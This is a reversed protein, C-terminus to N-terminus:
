VHARGIEKSVGMMKKNIGKSEQQEELDNYDDATDTGVPTKLSYKRQVYENISQESYGLLKGIEHAEDPNKDSLYGGKSKAIEYLRNAKKEDRYVISMMTNQSTMRIPIAGLKYKELKKIHQKNLDILAVDRKGKILTRLANADNRAEKPHIEEVINLKENYRELLSIRSM